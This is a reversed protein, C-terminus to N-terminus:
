VRIYGYVWGLGTIGTIYGVWIFPYPNEHTHTRTHLNLGMPIGMGIVLQSKKVIDECAGSAYLRILDFM